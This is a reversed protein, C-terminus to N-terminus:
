EANPKELQMPEIQREGGTVRMVDKDMKNFEKYATNYSNVTTSLNNGLKKMYEDYALIHKGLEEIALSLQTSVRAGFLEHWTLSSRTEASSTSVLELLPEQHLSKRM